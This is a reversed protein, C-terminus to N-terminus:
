VQAAAARKDATDDEVGKQRAEEVKAELEKALLPYFFEVTYKFIYFIM